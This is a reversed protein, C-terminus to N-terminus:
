MNDVEFYNCCMQGYYLSVKTKFSRSGPVYPMARVEDPLKNWLLNIRQTYFSRYTETRADSDRLVNQRESFRTTRRQLRPPFLFNITQGFYGNIAQHASGIDLAERRYSLPILGTLVLRDKYSM